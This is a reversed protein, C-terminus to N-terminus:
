KRRALLGLLGLAQPSFAGGAAQGPQMGGRQGAQLMQAGLGGLLGQNKKWWPVAGPMQQPAAQQALQGMMQTMAPSQYQGAGRLIPPIGGMGLNVFGM